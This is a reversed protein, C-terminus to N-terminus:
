SCPNRFGALDSHGSLFGRPILTAQFSAVRVKLSRKVPQALGDMGAPALFLFAPSAGERNAEHAVSNRKASRGAIKARLGFFRRGNWRVGTIARAVASLSAFTRGNWRFGSELATVRHLSNQHERIFTTGPRISPAGAPGRAKSGAIPAAPPGLDERSVAALASVVRAPL